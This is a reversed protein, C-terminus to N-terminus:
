AEPTRAAASTREWTDGVEEGSEDITQQRHDLAEVDSVGRKNSSALSTCGPRRARPRRSGYAACTGSGEVTVGLALYCPRRQM